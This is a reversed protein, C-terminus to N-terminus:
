CTLHLAAVVRRRAAMSNYTDVASSTPQVVLKMGRERARQRVEDHVKMMASWGSGVVLAEPRESLAQELDKWQLLHGQERRWGGRVGCGTVIVDSTYARGDIAIKGFSYSEIV